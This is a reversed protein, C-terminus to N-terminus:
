IPIVIIIRILLIIIRALMKINTLESVKHSLLNHPPGIDVHEIQIINSNIWKERFKFFLTNPIRINIDIRAPIAM